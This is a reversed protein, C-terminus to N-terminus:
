VNVKGRLNRYQKIANEDIDSLSSDNIVTSDFTESHSYFVMLDEESCRQDSSGIRRFAGKPLGENLFYLPKQSPQLEPIFVNVVNKGNVKEIEIEPRVPINFLSACQSALDSQIKDTLEVGVVNYQPFLSLGDPVVGLLIYGGGLNPENAFSCVTQMISKDIASGKKAEIRTTEDTLNLLQILEIAREM